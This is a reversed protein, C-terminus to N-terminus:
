KKVEFGPSSYEGNLSGNAGDYTHKQNELVNEEPIMGTETIDDFRM